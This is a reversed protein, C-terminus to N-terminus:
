RFLKGLGLVLKPAREFPQEEEGAIREPLDVPELVIGERSCPPDRKPHERSVVPPIIPRGRAQKDRLVSIGREQTKTALDLKEVLDELADAQREILEQQQVYSSVSTHM